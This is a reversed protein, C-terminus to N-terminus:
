HSGSRFHPRFLRLRNANTVVTVSSFAMASGAIVPSLLLGFVPYLVGAAIPIGLVNYFFAGFLNQRINRFTAKSLELAHVVGVLSGGMLVMDGTEMAVDTGTGMAIGVDALALAPADNIGDGVMAVRHGQSQLARIREAKEGPLLQALVEDVGVEMGIARAAGEHDGTLMIVRLGMEKLRAVAAASDKKVPDSVALAGLYRGGRAVLVPTRGAATIEAVAETWPGSPDELDKFFEPSGVLVTEGGVMATVGRGPTAEFSSAREWTLGRSRAASVVATALPHESGEEAAGAVSLLEEEPVGPKPLIGVLAPKGQTITGTKDLVVTDVRRAAQLAEGNRVLIGLEAAKGVSVMISIPTALGLACPCAIVLVAVAVVAAFSLRPEPGFSYWAAFTLVAVIMVVPVFYSAVVDVTRQISPKSGQAARVMEVIHALVTDKGVRSARFRFSGASNLTGGVVPDGIGKEVPLSEGTVMSEDITSHGEAVEGDVPIKEGPRVVVLEGVQVEQAPIEVEKGGRLVRATRPRLDMLRRLAQSTKGKARAELAQGLMVLTIVVATAEFFPHATGEPFLGPLVVAFTSYIWASGTGLAVLTDMTAERHRLASWAGTFFRQGVYAMIPLTLLASLFWLIRMTGHDLGGLGPILHAHGIVAVPVGLIVGVWFRRLLDRYEAEREDERRRLAEEFGEGTDERIHFGAKEVAAGLSAFDMVGPIFRLQASETALSVDAGLVGVGRGMVREVRSVCAACHMGEVAVEAVGVPVRYGAGEVAALLQELGVSGPDFSVRAEGTALNVSADAVGSVGKLAGEVRSICGACHIGDVPLNVTLLAAGGHVPQNRQVAESM